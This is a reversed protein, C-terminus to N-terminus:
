SIASEKLKKRRAVWGMLGLGVAMMAYIEPEPIAATITQSLLDGTAKSDYQGTLFQVKLHPADFNLNTGAFNITFSMSDSLAVAATPQYFCAGPTGGTTCGAASALGNNVNSSWSALTAGTVNGIDKIEFAKLYNVNAWNGSGGTLANTITLQLTNGSAVTEFTVGQFTLTNATAPTVFLTVVAAISALALKRLTM